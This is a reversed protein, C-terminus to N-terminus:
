TVYGKHNNTYRLYKKVNKVKEKGIYHKPKGFWDPAEYVTICKDNSMIFFYSQYVIIICAGKKEKSLLYKREEGFFEDTSKGRELAKLIFSESNVKNNVREEVRKLAHYTLM